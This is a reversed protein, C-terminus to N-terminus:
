GASARRAEGERPEAAMDHRPMPFGLRGYLDILDSRLADIEAQLRGVDKRLGEDASTTVEGEFLGQVTTGAVEAAVEVVWAPVVAEGQIWRRYTSASPSGSAREALVKAFANASRAGSIAQARALAAIARRNYDDVAM